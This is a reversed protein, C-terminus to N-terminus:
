ILKLKTELDKIVHTLVLAKKPYKKSLVSGVTNQKPIIKIELLMCIIESLDRASLTNLKIQNEKLFNIVFLLEKLVPYNKYYYNTNWNWYNRKPLPPLNSIKWSGSNTIEFEISFKTGKISETAIKFKQSM